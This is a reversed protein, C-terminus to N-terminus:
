TLSIQGTSLFTQGGRIQVPILIKPSSKVVESTLLVRRVYKVFASGFAYFSVLSKVTNKISKPDVLMFATCLINIFNVSPRPIEFYKIAIVRTSSFKMLLGLISYEISSLTIVWQTQKTNSGLSLWLEDSFWDSVTTIEEDIKKEKKM